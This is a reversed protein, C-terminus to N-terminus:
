IAPHSASRSFTQQTRPTPTASHDAAVPANPRACEKATINASLSSSPAPSHTAYGDYERTMTFQKGSCRRPKEFPVISAALLVPGAIPASSPPNNIALTPQRINKTTSPAAPRTHSIGHTLHRGRDGRRLDPFRASDAALM